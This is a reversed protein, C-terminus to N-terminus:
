IVEKGSTKERVYDILNYENNEGHSEIKNKRMLAAQKQEHSITPFVKIGGVVKNHRQQSSNHHHESNEALFEAFNKENLSNEEHISTTFFTQSSLKSASELNSGNGLRSYENNAKSNNHSNSSAFSSLKTQNSNYGHPDRYKMQRDSPHLVEALIPSYSRLKPSMSPTYSYSAPQEHFNRNTNILSNIQNALHAKSRSTQESKQLGGIYDNYDSLRSKFLFLSILRNVTSSLFFYLSIVYM